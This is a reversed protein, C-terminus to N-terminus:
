DGRELQEVLQLIRDPIAYIEDSGEEPRELDISDLGLNDLLLAALLVATKRIEALIKSDMRNRRPYNNLVFGFRQGVM